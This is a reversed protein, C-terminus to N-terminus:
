MTEKSLKNINKNKNHRTINIYKKINNVEIYIIGNESNKSYTVVATSYPTHVTTYTSKLTDYIISIDEVNQLQLAWKHIANNKDIKFKCPQTIHNDNALKEYIKYYVMFEHYRCFIENAINENYKETVSDHIVMVRNFFQIINKM